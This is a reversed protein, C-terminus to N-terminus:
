AIVFQSIGDMRRQLDDRQRTLEDLQKRLMVESDEREKKLRELERAHETRALELAQEARACRTQADLGVKEAELAKSESEM